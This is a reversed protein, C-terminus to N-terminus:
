AYILVVVPDERHALTSITAGFFWLWLGAYIMRFSLISGHSLRRSTLLVFCPVVLTPLLLSKASNTLTDAHLGILNYYARGIFTATTQIFFLLWQLLLFTPSASRSVLQNQLRRM